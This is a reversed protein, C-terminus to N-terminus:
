RRTAPLELADWVLAHIEGQYPWEEPRGVLGARVPNTSVYGWKEAYSEVHRMPHDFFEAQWSFSTMGAERIGKRTWRKWSEMFQSLTKAGEGAPTAFFHVHNPMVVYRGVQWGHVPLADRWAGVLIESVAPQALIPIRNHVCQTLYYLPSRSSDFIGPLRRLHRRRQLAPTGVGASRIKETGGRDGECPTV